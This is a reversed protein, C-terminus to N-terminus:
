VHSVFEESERGMDITDPFLKTIDQNIRLCFKFLDSQFFMNWDIKYKRGDGKSREGGWMGCIGDCLM